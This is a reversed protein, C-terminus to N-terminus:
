QSRVSAGTDHVQDPHFRKGEVIMSELLLIVISSYQFMLRPTDGFSPNDWLHRSTELSQFSKGGFLKHM